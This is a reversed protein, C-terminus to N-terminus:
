ARCSDMLAAIALTTKGGGTSGYLYLSDNSSVWDKLTEIAKMNGADIVMAPWVAPDLSAVQWREPVEAKRILKPVLMELRYKEANAARANECKVCPAVFRFEKSHVKSFTFTVILDDGCGACKEMETRPEMMWGM